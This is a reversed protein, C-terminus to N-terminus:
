DKDADLDKLVRNLKVEEKDDENENNKGGGSSALTRSKKDEILTKEAEHDYIAYRRFYPM